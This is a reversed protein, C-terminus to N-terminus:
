FINLYERLYPLHQDKESLIPQPIRDLPWQIGVDPDDWRIGSDTEPSYDDGSSYCMLTNEELAMMGHAFGAPIYLLAPTDASLYFGKWKGFTPSGFRLDIAVDFAEGQAVRVLKAQPHEIQFHMGRIVGRASKSQAEEHPVFYIGNQEFIRNEYRKMYYGRGDSVLFPHILTLGPIDTHEFFFPQSAAKKANDPTQM